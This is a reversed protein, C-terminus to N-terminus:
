LLAASPLEASAALPFFYAHEPNKRNKNIRATRPSAPSAQQQDQQRQATTGASGIGIRAIWQLWEVARNVTEVVRKIGCDQFRNRGPVAVPDRFAYALANAIEEFIQFIDPRQDLDSSCM